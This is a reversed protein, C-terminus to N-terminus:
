WIGSAPNDVFLRAERIYQGLMVDTKHGTQQRIKWTEVGQKACETCFGARLSHGSVQKPDIGAQEAHFKIIRVISHDTLSEGVVTGGKKVSRFVYGEKIRGVDLWKKLAIVPCLEGRAYPIAVKRGLGEQDTKSKPVEITVGNETFTLDGLKMLALESRRFAGTFGILLLACDRAKKLANAVSTEAMAEVDNKLLPKVQRKQSARQKKLAKFSKRVLIDRCPNNLGLLEHAAGIAALHVTLTAISCPQQTQVWVGDLKKWVRASRIYDDVEEPTAPVKFGAGMFMKLASEYAKQTGKSLSNLFAQQLKADYRSLKGSNKAIVTPM